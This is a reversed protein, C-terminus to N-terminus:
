SIEQRKSSLLKPSINTAVMQILLLLVVGDTILLKMNENSTIACRDDTANITQRATAVREIQRKCQYTPAYIFENIIM